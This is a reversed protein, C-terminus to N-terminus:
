VGFQRLHHDLHKYMGISWEKPTLPGFFAHPHMTCAAEGGESFQKALKILREKEKNFDKNQGTMIFSKDTPSNKHFPKENIFNSKFIGGLLKGMLTRPPNVKGLASELGICCHALMQGANMKGWENNKEPSLRNIRDIIENLVSPEFLSKM